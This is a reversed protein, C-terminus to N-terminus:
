RKREGRRYHCDCCPGGGALTYQRTFESGSLEAMDYDYTCMAPTYESIGLSQFLRYIGCATFFTSYSNLDPGPEHTFCWTCPNEQYRRPSDAAQRALKARGKATYAGGKKLFLRMVTNNTMANHYYEEVAKVPPKEPLELLVAPLMSAGLFNVLFRDGKEFEPITTLIERYRRYAREMLPKPAERTIKPLERTFSGRFVTWMLRPMMGFQM